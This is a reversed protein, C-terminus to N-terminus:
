CLIAILETEQTSANILELYMSLLTNVYTYNPKLYFLEHISAALIKRM